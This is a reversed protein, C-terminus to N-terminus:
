RSSGRSDIQVHQDDEALQGHYNEAVLDSLKQKDGDVTSKSDSEDINGAARMNRHNTNRLM